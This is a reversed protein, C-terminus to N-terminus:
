GQRVGLRQLGARARGVQDALEAWTLEVRDRTQSLGVVAIDSGRAGAARLSHEAYNFRAGEFWRAGPMARSDLVRAYRESARVDFFDWVAAWFDDLGTDTSWRWLADYTEFALNTSAECWDMFEGLRTAGRADAAPEWLVPPM